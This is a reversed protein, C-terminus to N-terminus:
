YNGRKLSNVAKGESLRVKAQEWREESVATLGIAVLHPRLRMTLGPQYHLLSTRNRNPIQFESDRRDSFNPQRFGIRL